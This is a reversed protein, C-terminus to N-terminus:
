KVHHQKKKMPDIYQDALWDKARQITSQTTYYPYLLLESQKDMQQNYTYVLSGKANIDLVRDIELVVEYTSGDLKIAGGEETYVIIGKDVEIMEADRVVDKITCELEQSEKTEISVMEAYTKDYQLLFADAKPMLVAGMTDRDGTSYELVVKDDEYIVVNHKFRVLLRKSTEYGHISEVNEAVREAGGESMRYLENYSRTYITGGILLAEDIYADTTVQEKVQMMETDIISYMREGAVLLKGESYIRASALEMPLPLSTLTMDDLALRYLMQNETIFYYAEKEFAGWTMGAQIATQLESSLECMKKNEVDWLELLPKGEVYNAIWKGSESIGGHYGYMSGDRISTDGLVTYHTDRAEALKVVAKKEYSSVYMAGGGSLIHDIEYPLEQRKWGLEESKTTLYYRITGDDNATMIVDDRWIVDSIYGGSIYTQLVEGTEINILEMMQGSVLLILADDVPSFQGEQCGWQKIDKQYIANGDLDYVIAYGADDLVKAQYQVSCLLKSSDPSFDLDCFSETPLQVSTVKGQEELEVIYVAGEMTVCGLKKGDPSVVVNSSFVTSEDTIVKNFLRKGTLAEFVQIEEDQLIIKTKDPTMTMAVAGFDIEQEWVVQQDVLTECVLKESNDLYVLYKDQYLAWEGTAKQWIKEGTRTDWLALSGRDDQTMLYIGDATVEIRKVKDQHSYFQDPVPDSVTEYSRMAKHLAYESQPVYPRDKEVMDAPLMNLAIYAGMSRDGQETVKHAVESMYLSEDKLRLQMQERLKENAEEARATQLRLQYAQWTSFAGFVTLCGILISGLTMIRKLRRVKDRQRLADYTCGLIPAIIRLLEQELLKHRKYKSTARIDAALPEVEVERTELVGGEGVVEQTRYRLVSPFAEEPEGDILLALIHEHGHLKSFTEIEQRVWKSHPTDPSCIVILYGSKELAEQINAALDSSTPLEEQDRFVRDLKRKEVGSDKPAVYTELLRHLKKAIEKDLPKHRYSIFADYKYERM